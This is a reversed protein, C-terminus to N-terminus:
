VLHSPALPMGVDLGQGTHGGIGGKSGDLAHKLAKVVTLGCLHDQTVGQSGM